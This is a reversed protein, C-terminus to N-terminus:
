RSVIFLTIFAAVMFGINYSSIQPINIWRMHMALGLAFVGVSLWKITNQTSRKMYAFITLFVKISLELDIIFNKM